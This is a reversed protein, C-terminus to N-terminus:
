SARAHDPGIPDQQRDRGALRVAPRAVNMAAAETMPPRGGHRHSTSRRRREDAVIRGDRMRVVRKAHAAVDDEHTIVVLTRGGAALEDFLALVEATSHSDLAGTPEDALLLVPDTM